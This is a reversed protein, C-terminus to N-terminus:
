DSHHPEQKPLQWAYSVYGSCDQRYGDRRGNQDYPVSDLIWTRARWYIWQRTNPTPVRVAYYSTSYATPITVTLIQGKYFPYETSVNYYASVTLAGVWYKGPVTMYDCNTSTKNFTYSTLVGASNKGSLTIKVASCALVKVQSGSAAAHVPTISVFFFVAVFIGACLVQM